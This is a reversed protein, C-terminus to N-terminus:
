QGVLPAAFRARGMIDTRMAPQPAILTLVSKLDANPSSIFDNLDKLKSLDNLGWITRYELEPTASSVSVAFTGFYRLGSTQIPLNGPNGEFKAVARTFDARSAPAVTYFWVVFFPPIPAGVDGQPSFGFTAGSRVDPTVMSVSPASAAQGVLNAIHKLDERSTM